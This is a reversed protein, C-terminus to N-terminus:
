RRAVPRRPRLSRWGDARVRQAVMRPFLTALYNPADWRPRSALDAPSTIEVGRLRERLGFLAFGQAELRASVPTPLPALEEFLIHSIRRAALAAAAGDLASLEHGEVDLKLLAVTRERLVDDLAVTEIGIADASELELSATATNSAFEDGMSLRAVGTRSSVARGDVTIQGAGARAVNGHLVRRLAPHPEFSLVSGTVGVRSAMLSTFYGVNAGADVALDGPALLRFMTETVSLEHVGTRAIGAGHRETANVLLTAGWPLTVIPQAQGRLRARQVLQQPRYLYAPKVLREALTSIV